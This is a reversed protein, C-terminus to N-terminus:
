LMHCRRANSFILLSCYSYESKFLHHTVCPTPHCLNTTTLTVAIVKGTAVLDGFLHVTEYRTRDRLCVQVSGELYRVKGSSEDEDSSPVSVVRREEIDERFIQGRRMLSFFCVAKKGLPRGM